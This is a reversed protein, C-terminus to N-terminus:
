LPLDRRYGWLITQAITPIGQVAEEDGRHEYHDAVIATMAIRLEDNMVVGAVTRQYEMFAVNYEDEAQARLLRQLTYNVVSDAAERSADYADAATLYAPEATAKAAALSAADPYINRGMFRVALREATVILADIFLDDGDHTVRIDHKVTERDLVPM